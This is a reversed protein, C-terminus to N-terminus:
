DNGYHKVELFTEGQPLENNVPFTRYSAGNVPNAHANFWKEGEALAKVKTEHRTTREYTM